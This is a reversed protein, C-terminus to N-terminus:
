TNTTKRDASTSSSSTCSRHSSVSTTTWGGLGAACAGSTHLLLLQFSCILSSQRNCGRDASSPGCWSPHDLLAAGWGPVEFIHQINKGDDIEKNGGGERGYYSQIWCSRNDGADITDGPQSSGVADARSDVWGNIRALEAPSLAQELTVFGRLDFFFEEM